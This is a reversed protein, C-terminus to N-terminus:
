IVKWYCTYENGKTLGFSEYRQALFDDGTPSYVLVQKHGRSKLIEVARNYLAQAIEQENNGKAVAFRFLWAVRGDEILSVTGVIKGDEEVVLIAESDDSIKKTLREESDRNEDFQGGYLESQKYLATVSEYDSPNYPRTTVSM